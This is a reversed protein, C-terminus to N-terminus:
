NYAVDISCDSCLRAHRFIRPTNLVAGATGVLMSALRGGSAILSLM